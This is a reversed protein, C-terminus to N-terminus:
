QIPGQIKNSADIVWVVAKFVPAEIMSAIVKAIAMIAIIVTILFITRPARREKLVEIAREIWGVKEKLKRVCLIGVEAIILALVPGIAAPFIAYFITFWYGFFSFALLFLAIRFFRLSLSPVGHSRQRWSEILILSACTFSFFSIPAAILKISLNGSLVSIAVFVGLIPLLDKNDKLYSKLTIIGDEKVIEDPMTSKTIIANRSRKGCSM